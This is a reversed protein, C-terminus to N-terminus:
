VHARGILVQPVTSAFGLESVTLELEIETESVRAFLLFSVMALTGFLYVAIPWRKRRDGPRAARCLNTLRALRELSELRETSVHGGSEIAEKSAVRLERLLSERLEEVQKPRVSSM